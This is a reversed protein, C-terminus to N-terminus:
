LFRKENQLIKKTTEFVREAEKTGFTKLKQKKPLGWINFIRPGIWEGYKCDDFVGKLICLAAKKPKMFIIKMPHKILAFILKPYHATINTFTIGPHTVTLSVNSESKLKEYFYLMLHRKANGYVKSDAKVSTFDINEPNTKSYNHAISGVLVVKASKIELEKKLSETLYIPSLFNIVFINNFGFNTTKRPISYAGANHIIVDPCDFRLQEIVGDVSNKDELDLKLFRYKFDSFEKQLSNILEKTKEESRNLFVIEAGLYALYRCLETGIGGTAGTVAVKKGKLSETNKDLWKKYNM